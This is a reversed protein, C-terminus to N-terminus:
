FVPELSWGAKPSPLTLTKQPGSGPARLRLRLRSGDTRSVRLAARADSRDEVRPPRPHVGAALAVLTLAVAAGVLVVPDHGKLEFLLAQALQGLWSRPASASRM